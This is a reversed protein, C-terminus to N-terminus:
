HGYRIHIQILRIQESKDYRRTGKYLFLIQFILILKTVCTYTGYSLYLNQLVRILDSIGTHAEFSCLGTIIILESYSYARYSRRSDRIFM